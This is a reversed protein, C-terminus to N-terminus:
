EQSQSQPDNYARRRRLLLAAPIATGGKGTVRLLSRSARAEFSSPCAHSMARIRQDAGPLGEEADSM